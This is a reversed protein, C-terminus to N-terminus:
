DTNPRKEESEKENGKCYIEAYEGTNKRELIQIEYKKRQILLVKM